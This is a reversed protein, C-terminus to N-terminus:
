EAAMPIAPQRAAVCEAMTPSARAIPNTLHFDIVASRLPADSLEGSMGITSLDLPAGTPVYDVQGFTPHDAILRARLEGISDYPLRAGLRESLARLIAWDERGDGKPFVARDAMQVRGETNVWAGPKETYAAGPLIVDARAAGADGHTGLYVVFTEGLRSTDIEDAGLLFLVDLAGHGAGGLMQHAAMGGERPLFGLDLGGVRSAATHLVNWGNWGERVVEFVQAVQAAAHLVAGGDPRALAGAGVVVAPRQAARLTEAFPHGWSTAETLAGPGQGLREFPYTLDAADGVVAVHANNLWWAKRIRTNLVPSELRPNAGVLLVADAQELGMVTTNFLYAERAGGGIRAGDQRCDLNPVGAGGFLDLAAKMSEADQLDGAIVGVREPAAGRLRDAVADFAEAWSAEQLRGGRRVYPRDLRRRLLGDVAYRSKDSLWEENVGEHIRPLARMVENGRVQFVVNSGLADHVDVGEVKKLEWPRYNFSWPRHTLAGVPCLDNINGVLESDLNEELYTTIEMDEGRGTAGIEHKGAVEAMFRVCRTCHICRTMVTKVLPGMNKEEVARKNILYRSDDRGYGLAQDQLDCEGGQDCIPCDLPHNILLFEMVGERAKKVMPSNTTIEMGEAAPLACSAQPKPPGPKVEVLCMRCNGPISLREHYCFRPIEEGALEAVQLATMGAEFEVEVGNVKATPM